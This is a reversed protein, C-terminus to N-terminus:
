LVKMSLSFSIRSFQGQYGRESELFLVVLMFRLFFIRIKMGDHLRWQEICWVPFIGEDQSSLLYSLGLQCVVCFCIQACTSGKITSAFPEMTTQM